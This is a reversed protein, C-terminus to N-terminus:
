RQADPARKDHHESAARDLEMKAQMARRNASHGYCWILMDDNLDLCDCLLERMSLEVAIHNQYAGIDAPGVAM